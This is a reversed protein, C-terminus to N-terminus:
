DYDYLEIGKSLYYERVKEDLMELSEYIIKNTIDEEKYNFPISVCDAHLCDDDANYYYSVYPIEKNDYYFERAMGKRFEYLANDIYEKRKNKGM